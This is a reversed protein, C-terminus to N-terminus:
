EVIYADIFRADAVNKSVLKELYSSLEAIQAACWYEGPLIKMVSQSYIPYM